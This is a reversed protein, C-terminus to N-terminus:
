AREERSLVPRGEPVQEGAAILRERKKKDYEEHAKRLGGEMSEFFKLHPEVIHKAVIREVWDLQKPTVQSAIYVAGLAAPPALLWEPGLVAMALKGKRGVAM